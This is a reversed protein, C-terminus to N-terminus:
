RRDVSVFRVKTAQGTAQRYDRVCENEYYPWAQQSCSPGFKDTPLSDSNAGAATSAQVETSPAALVVIAAVVTAAALSAIVFTKNM